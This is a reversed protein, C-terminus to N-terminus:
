PVPNTVDGGKNTAIKNGDLGAIVVGCIIIVSASLSALTIKMDGTARYKLFSIVLLASLSVIALIYRWMKMKDYEGKPLAETKKIMNLIDFGLFSGVLMVYFVSTSDAIDPVLIIIGALFITAVVFLVGKAINIM